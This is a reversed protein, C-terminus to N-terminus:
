GCDEFFFNDDDLPLDFIHNPALHEIQRRKAESVKRGWHKLVGLYIETLTATPRTFPALAADSAQWDVGTLACPGVTVMWPPDGVSGSGLRSSRVTKGTCVRVLKPHGGGRVDLVETGQERRHNVM